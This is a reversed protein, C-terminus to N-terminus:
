GWMFRLVDLDDETIQLVSVNTATGGAKFLFTNVLHRDWLLLHGTKLRPHDVYFCQTSQKQLISEVRQYIEHEVMHDFIHCEQPSSSCARYVGLDELTFSRIKFVPQVESCDKENM